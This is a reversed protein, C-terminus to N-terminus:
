LAGRPPPPTPLKALRIHRRFQNLEGWRWGFILPIHDASPFIPITLAGPPCDSTVLFYRDYFFLLAGKPLARKLPYLIRFRDPESPYLTLFRAITTLPFPPRNSPLTM